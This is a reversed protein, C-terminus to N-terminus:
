WPLDDNLGDVIKAKDLPLNAAQDSTMHSPAFPSKSMTGTQFSTNMREDKPQRQKPKPKAGIVNDVVLSLSVRPEGGEPTYVEARMAGQCSLADGDDLRMLEDQASNSFVTLRWFQQSDGDRAKMTATVYATGAKSTKREPSKFLKGTILAIATM